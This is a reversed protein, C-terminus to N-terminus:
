IDFIQSSSPTRTNQHTHEQV